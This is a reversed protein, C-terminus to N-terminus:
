GCLIIDALMGVAEFGRSGANLLAGDVENGYFVQGVRM